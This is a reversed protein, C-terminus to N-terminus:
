LCCHDASSGGAEEGGGTFGRELKSAVSGLVSAAIRRRCLLATESPSMGQVLALRNALAYLLCRAQGGWAGFVEVM